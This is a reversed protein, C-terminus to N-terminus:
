RMMMSAVWRLACRVAAPRKFFPRNEAADAACLTQGRSSRPAAQVGLKMGDGILVAFGQNQKQGFPLHVIVLAGADDHRRQRGCFDEDGIPALMPMSDPSHLQSGHTGSITNLTSGGRM